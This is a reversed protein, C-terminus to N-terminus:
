KIISIGKIRIDTLPRANKDTKEAAIKDIVEL